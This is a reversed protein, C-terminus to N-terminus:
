KAVEGEGLGHKAAYEEAKWRLKEVRVKAKELRKAEVAAKAARVVELQKRLEAIRDTIREEASQRKNIRVMDSM